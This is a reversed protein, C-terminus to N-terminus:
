DNESYDPVYPPEGETMDPGEYSEDEDYYSKETTSTTPIDVFQEVKYLRLLKGVCPGSYSRNVIFQQKSMDITLNVLNSDVDYLTCKLSQIEYQYNEYEITATWRDSGSRRAQYDFDLKTSIQHGPISINFHPTDFTECTRGQKEDFQSITHIVECIFIPRPNVNCIYYYGRKFKFDKRLIPDALLLPDITTGEGSIIEDDESGTTSSTSTIRRTSSRRTTNRRIVRKTGNTASKTNNSRSRVAPHVPEFILYILILTTSCLSLYVM